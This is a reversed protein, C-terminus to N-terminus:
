ALADRWAPVVRQIVAKAQEVTVGRHRLARGADGGEERLLSLFLHSPGVYNHGLERPVTMSLVLARKAEASWELERGSGQMEPCQEAQAELPLAAAEVSLAALVTALPPSSAELLAQLLHGTTVCGAGEHRALARAATIAARSQETFNGRYEAM